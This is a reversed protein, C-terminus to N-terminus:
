RLDRVLREATERLGGPRRRRRLEVVLLATATAVSAATVMALLGQSVATGGESLLSLGRYISLGPLLPVIASVVVVLPPVPAM